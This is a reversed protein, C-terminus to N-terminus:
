LNKVTSHDVQISNYTRGWTQYDSDYSEIAVSLNKYLSEFKEYTMSAPSRM